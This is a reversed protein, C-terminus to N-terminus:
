VMAAAVRPARYPQLVVGPDRLLRTAVLHSLIRITALTTTPNAQNESVSRNYVETLLENRHKKSFRRFSEPDDIPVCSVDRASVKRVLDVIEETDAVNLFSLPRYNIITM